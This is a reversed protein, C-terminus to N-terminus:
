DDLYKHQECPEWQQLPRHYSLETTLTDYEVRIDTKPIKAQIYRHEINDWKFPIGHIHCDILDAIDSRKEEIRERLALLFERDSLKIM